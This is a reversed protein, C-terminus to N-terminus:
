LVESLQLNMTLVIMALFIMTLFHWSIFDFINNRTYDAIDMQTQNSMM